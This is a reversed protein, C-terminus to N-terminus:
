GLFLLIAYIHTYVKFLTFDLGIGFKLDLVLSKSTITSLRARVRDFDINLHVSRCEQGCSLPKRAYKSKLDIELVM